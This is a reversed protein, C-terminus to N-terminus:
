SDFGLTKRWAAVTRPVEPVEGRMIAKEAMETLESGWLGHVWAIARIQEASFGRDNYELREYAAHTMRAAQYVDRSTMEAGVRLQRIVHALAANIQGPELEPVREPEPEREQEPM